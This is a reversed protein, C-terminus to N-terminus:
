ISSIQVEARVEPELVRTCSAYRVASSINRPHAHFLSNWGRPSQQCITPPVSNSAAHVRRLTDAQFQEEGPGAQACMQPRLLLYTGNARETQTHANTLSILATLTAFMFRAVELHLAVAARQLGFAERSGAVTDGLRCSSTGAKTEVAFRATIEVAAAVRAGLKGGTATLLSM